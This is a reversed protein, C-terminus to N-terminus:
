KLQELVYTVVREPINVGTTDISNRFEMTYNVENVLLGETSEFLDIALVGGGVAHAAAVSLSAIEDTVPCGTAVAGRATNTIWHSSSRYIAAICENGVVFSRIDRGQKEVYKQIYFISHHYSGLVTKHELIAEASERDNVKALLRGWSGVAPKLVVPYGLEEIAILASDETFAVRIPPQALGAEKLALSTLIKDGCIRAVDSSNICRIGLSEFLRLGHMARSHNICREVVIDIDPVSELDFTLKRDDLMIPTVSQQRFAELLLKEEKRILSHLLGVRM